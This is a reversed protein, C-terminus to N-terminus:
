RCIDHCSWGQLRGAAALTMSRRKIAIGDLKEVPLVVFLKIRNEIVVHAERFAHRRSPWPICRAKQFAEPAIARSAARAWHDSLVEALISRASNGTCLFLVRM